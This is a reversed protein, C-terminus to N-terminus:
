YDYDKAMNDEIFMGTGRGQRKGTAAFESNLADLQSPRATVLRLCPTTLQGTM